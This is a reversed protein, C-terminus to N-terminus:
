FVCVGVVGAGAVVLVLVVTGNIIRLTKNIKFYVVEDNNPGAVVSLLLIGLTLADSSRVLVM